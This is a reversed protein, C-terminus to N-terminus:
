LHKGSVFKVMHAKHPSLLRRLLGRAAFISHNNRRIISALGNGGCMTTLRQMWYRAARYWRQAHGSSLGEKHFFLITRKGEEVAEDLLGAAQEPRRDLPKILFCSRLFFDM